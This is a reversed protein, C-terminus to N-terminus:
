RDSAENEDCHTSGVGHALLATRDAPLPDELMEAWLRPLRELPRLAREQLRVGAAVGHGFPRQGGRVGLSELHLAPRALVHGTRRGRVVLPPLRPLRRVSPQHRRIQSPGKFITRIPSSPRATASISSISCYSRDVVRPLAISTSSM